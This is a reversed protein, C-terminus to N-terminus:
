NEPLFIRTIDGKEDFYVEIDLYDANNSSYRYFKTAEDKQEVVNPKGMIEIVSNENMGVKLNKANAMNQQGIRAAPSFHGDYVIYAIIALMVIAVIYLGKKLVNM